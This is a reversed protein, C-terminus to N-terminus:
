MNQLVYYPAIDVDSAWQKYSSVYLTEASQKKSLLQPTMTRTYVKMRCDLQRKESNNRTPVYM